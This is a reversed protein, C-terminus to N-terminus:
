NSKGVFAGAGAGLTTSGLTQTLTFAGGIESAKPGFFNGQSNFLTKSGDANRTRSVANFSSDSFSIYGGGTLTGFSLKAGNAINTGVPTANMAITGAGFDAVFSASGGLTYTASKTAYTGDLIAHYSASGSRPMNAAPTNAGFVVFNNDLKISGSPPVVWKGYTVYTLAIVPNSTSDKLLQLTQGTATDRYFAYAASSKATVIENPSFSTTASGDSLVYTQSAADYHVTTPHLATVFPQSYATPDRVVVLSWQGPYDGTKLAPTPSAASASSVPIALALLSAAAFGCVSQIRAM